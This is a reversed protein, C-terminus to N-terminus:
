KKDMFGFLAAVVSVLVELVGVAGCLAIIIAGIIIGLLVDM